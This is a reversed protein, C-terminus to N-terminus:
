LKSLPIYVESSFMKEKFLVISGGTNIVYESEIDNFTFNLWIGEQNM